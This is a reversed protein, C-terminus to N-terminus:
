IFLNWGQNIGMSSPREVNSKIAIDKNSSIHM